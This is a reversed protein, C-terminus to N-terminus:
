APQLSKEKLIEALPKKEKKSECWSILDLNELSNKEYPDNLLVELDHKFDDILKNQEHEGILDIAAAFFDLALKEFKFTDKSGALHRKGSKVLSELLDYDGTEFHIMLKLVNAFVRIEPATGSNRDNLLRNLWHLANVYDAGIFYLYAFFYYFKIMRYPALDKKYKKLEEMIGDIYSIGEKYM